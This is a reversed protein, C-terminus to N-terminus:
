KKANNMIKIMQNIEDDTFSKMFEENIWDDDFNLFDLVKKSILYLKDSDIKCCAM